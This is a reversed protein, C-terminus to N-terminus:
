QAINVQAQYPEKDLQVLLDGKHVRNNDEVLVRSVQGVVRAAVLTVHGNVYADDTSVTTLAAHLYPIGVIALILVIAIIVIWRWRAKRAPAAPKVAPPTPAVPTSAHSNAESTENAM